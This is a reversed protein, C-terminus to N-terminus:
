GAGLELACMACACIKACYDAGAASSGAVTYLGLGGGGERKNEGM